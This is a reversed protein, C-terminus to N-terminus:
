GLLSRALNLWYALPECAMEPQKGSDDINRLKIIEDLHPTLAYATAEKTNMPGGQQKLTTTSAHSLQPLYNAEITALYRKVQVHERVLTVIKKSFGGEALFDAGLQDHAAYGYSSQDPLKREEALFHGIDHLFAALAVDKGLDEQLALTGCQQAHQLQTCKEEYCQQGYVTYLYEIKECTKNINQQLM